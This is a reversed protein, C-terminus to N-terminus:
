ESTQVPLEGSSFLRFKERLPRSNTETAQQSGWSSSTAERAQPPGVQTEAPLWSLQSCQGQREQPPLATIKYLVHAGRCTWTGMCQEGLM